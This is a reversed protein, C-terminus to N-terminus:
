LSADSGVWDHKFICRGTIKGARLDEVAENIETISRFHHPIPAVKGSRILDLMEACQATPYSVPTVHNLGTTVAHACFFLWLRSFPQTSGRLPCHSPLSYFLHPRNKPPAFATTNLRVESLSGTMTGQVKLARFILVTLPMKMSGGLLGVQLVVLCAEFPQGGVFGSGSGLMAGRGAM